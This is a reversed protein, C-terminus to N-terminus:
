SSVVMLLSTSLASWVPNNDYYIQFAEMCMDLANEETMSQIRLLKIMNNAEYYYNADHEFDRYRLPNVERMAKEIRDILATM